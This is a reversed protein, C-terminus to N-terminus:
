IPTTPWCTLASTLDAASAPALDFALILDGPSVLLHLVTQRLSNFATMLVRRRRNFRSPSPIHPFWDRRERWHSLWTMETGRGLAYSTDRLHAVINPSSNATDPSEHGANLPWTQWAIRM